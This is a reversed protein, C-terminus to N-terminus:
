APRLAPDDEHARFFSVLNGAYEPLRPCRLGHRGLIENANSVDFRVPHAHLHHRALYLAAVRAVHRQKLTTVSELASGHGYGRRTRM